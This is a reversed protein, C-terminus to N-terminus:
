PIQTCIEGHDCAKVKITRKRRIVEHVYYICGKQAPIYVRRVRRKYMFMMLM